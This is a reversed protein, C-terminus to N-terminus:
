ANQLIRLIEERRELPLQRLEGVIEKELDREVIQQEAEIRRRDQADHEDVWDAYERARQDLVNEKLFDEYDGSERLIKTMACLAETQGVHQAYCENAQRGFNRKEEQTLPLNARRSVFLALQATKQARREEATQAMYDSNCPM